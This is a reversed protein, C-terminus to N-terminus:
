KIPTLSEDHSQALGKRALISNRTNRLTAIQQRLAANTRETGGFMGTTLGNPVSGSTLKLLEPNLRGFQSTGALAGRAEEAAQAAEESHPNLSLGWLNGGSVGGHAERQNLLEQEKNAADDSAQIADEVKTKEEESGVAINQNPGVHALTKAMEPNTARLYNAASDPLGQSGGGGGGSPIAQRLIQNQFIQGTQQNQAGIAEAQAKWNDIHLKAAENARNAEQNIQGLVLENAHGKLNQAIADAAAQQAQGGFHAKMGEIQQAAIHEGAATAADFEHMRDLNSDRAIDILSKKGSVGKWKNDANDQQARIDDQIRARVMDAAANPIKGGSFGQNFGGLAQAAILGIQSGTSKSNWFHNPDIKTNAADQVASQYDALKAKHDDVYANAIQDRAKLQATEWDAQTATAKNVAEGQDAAAQGEQQRAIGELGASTQIGNLQDQMQQNNGGGGGQPTFDPLPKYQPPQIQNPQSLTPLSGYGAPPQNPPPSGTGATAVNFSDDPASGPQANNWPMDAM